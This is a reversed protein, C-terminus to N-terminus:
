VKAATKVPASFDLKRSQLLSNGTNESPLAELHLTYTM